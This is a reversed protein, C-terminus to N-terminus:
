GRCGTQLCPFLGIDDDVYERVDVGSGEFALNFLPECVPGQPGSARETLHM